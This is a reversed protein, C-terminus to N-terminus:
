RATKFHSLMLDAVENQESPPLPEQGSMWNFIDPDSNSLFREYLALMAADFSPLHADAFGGLM